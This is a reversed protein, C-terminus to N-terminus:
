GEMDVPSNRWRCMLMWKDLYVDGDRWEMGNWGREMRMRVNGLWGEEMGLSGREMGRWEWGELEVHADRWTWLIMGEHGHSSEEMRMGGDGNLMRGNGDRWKWGEM